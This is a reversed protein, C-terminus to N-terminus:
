ANPKHCVLLIPFQFKIAKKEETAEEEKKDEPESEKSGASKSKKKEVTDEDKAKESRRKRGTRQTAPPKKASEKSDGKEEKPELPGDKEEGAVDKESANNTDNASPGSVPDQTKSIGDKAEPCAATITENEKEKTASTSDTQQKAAAKVRKRPPKADEAKEAEDKPKRGKRKPKPDALGTDPKPAGHVALQISKALASPPKEEPTSQIAEQAKEAAECTKDVTKDDAETMPKEGTKDVETPKEVTEPGKVEGRKKQRTVPPKKDQLLRFSSYVISSRSRIFCGHM